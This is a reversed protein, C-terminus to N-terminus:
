ELWPWFTTGSIMAAAGAVRDSTKPAARIQTTHRDHHADRGRHQAPRQEVRQEHDDRQDAYGHGNEPEALDDVQDGLAPQVM